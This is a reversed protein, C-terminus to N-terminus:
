MRKLKPLKATTPKKIDSVKKLKPLSLSVPKPVDEFKPLYKELIKQFSKTMSDLSFKGSNAIALKRTPEKYRNYNNYVYLLYRAAQQYNVTIWKAGDVLMNEPLSSKHVPTLVGPLLVSQTKSLFDIQGSWNPAIVPKESLTAELLPRGFGEGHTFTVHAKVKPHNYLQNIEEDELDGHLVYVPPFNDGGVHQKISKIKDLISMRDIVSFTAQSTKLILGPPNKKGRFTTLFVEILKALDKRDHGYDGQLWHGVFLFNWKTEVVDMQEILDTSFENTKKYIKTDVGEFLVEIPKEMRVEAIKNGKDDLKDFVVSEFIEKVFKSPVINMNMRNMGEVWEPVPTTNEIGATIGINYRGLPTFENPVSIQIHIEPQRDMQQKKLIRDLIRKDDENNPSLANMPCNGWRMSNIKIDFLDMDMLSKAIDRSHAGYGSRTAVPATLLLVPKM